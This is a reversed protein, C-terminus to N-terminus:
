RQAVPLWRYWISAEYAGIDCHAGQPRAVGREDTAPCTADDGADIAPSGPLLPLTLVGDGHDGLPGLRPNTGTLSTAATFGCTNAEDLNHGGDNLSGLCNTGTISNAIISNTLTVASESYIAAGGVDAANGSFTSNLVSLTGTSYAAMINAVAGGKGSINNPNTNDYYDAHNGTFTSNVVSMAGYNLIGGGSCANNDAFTSNVAVATGGNLIGGGGLCDRSYGGTNRIFQSGSVGLTGHNGIASVNDVFTSNVVTAVGGNSIGMSVNHDFTSHVVTLLGDNYIGAVYYTGVPDHAQNSVVSSDILTLEGTGANYAAGGYANQSVNGALVSGTVVLKGANYVGAGGMDAGDVIQLRSLTVSTGASVSFVRTWGSGSITPTAIASAAGDVALSKSIVIQGGTLTITQPVSFVASAFAVTDGATADLVAQRLSGPGGDLANTVTVTAAYAPRAFLLAMGATAVFGLLLFYGRCLAARKM